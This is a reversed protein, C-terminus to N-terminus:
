KFPMPNSKERYEYLVDSKNIKCPIPTATRKKRIAPTNILTEKSIPEEINPSGKVWSATDLKISTLGLSGFGSSSIIM